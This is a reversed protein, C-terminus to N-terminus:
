TNPTQAAAAPARGGQAGPGFNAFADALVPQCAELAASVTPDEPDLGLALPIRSTPDGGAGRQGRGGEPAGAQGTGSDNDTTDGPAAQGAGANGQGGPGAGLQFDGVDLGQDRLCETYPLLADQLEGRADGGGRGPAFGETLEQCGQIAARFDESRPNIGGQAGARLAGDFSPNGDADVVPDPFDIGGDRMCAAFALAAQEATTAEVPAAATEAEDAIADSDSTGALELTAVGGATETETAGGCASAFLAVLGFSGLLIRTSLSSRRPHIDTTM